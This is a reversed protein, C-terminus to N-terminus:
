LKLAFHADYPLARYIVIIDDNPIILKITPQYDPKKFQVAYTLYFWTQKILKKLRNQHAEEPHTLCLLIGGDVMFELTAQPRIISDPIIEAQAAEITDKPAKKVVIPEKVITGSQKDISLPKSFLKYYTPISIAKLVSSVEYSSIRSSFITVGKIQLNVLSDELNIALGISDSTSLLLQSEIFAKKKLMAVGIPNGIDDMAFMPNKYDNSDAIQNLAILEEKVSQQILLANYGFFGAFAAIIFFYRIRLFFTKM